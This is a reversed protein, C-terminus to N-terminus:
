RTWFRCQKRFGDVVKTLFHEYQLAVKDWTFGAAFKRGRQGLEKLFAVNNWLYMLKEKLDRTDGSRFSIGFGNDVVYKLEPIESVVLPKGLAATELAVIGQGEFRSPMVVFRSHSILSAKEKDDLFGLYEVNKKNKILKLLKPVDKGKGAIKIPLGDACSLLLDLGKNYFDIRGIYCIYDGMECPRIFFLRTDIGNSIISCSSILFKRASRRSVIIANPFRHPYYAEVLFFPTGLLPYRRLIGMGEKHHLQVVIPKENAFKYAFVPNWPAFDEVIVDFGLYHDKLFRHSMYAYSFVSLYYNGSFGVFKYKLGGESYDQAGEFKGSVILVKHGKKALRKNIEYARVAGGGGVWPNNIHDYILHLIRM